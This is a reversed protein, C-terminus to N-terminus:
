VGMEPTERAVRREGLVGRWIAVARVFEQEFIVKGNFCEKFMPNLIPIRGWWSGFDRIGGKNKGYDNDRELVCLNTHTHTHTHAHVCVHEIM